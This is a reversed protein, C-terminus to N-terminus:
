DNREGKLFKEVVEKSPKTREREVKSHYDIDSEEETYRICKNCPRKEYLYSKWGCGYCEDEWYDLDRM